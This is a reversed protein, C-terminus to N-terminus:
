ATHRSRRRALCLGLVGLGALTAFSSPEPIVNFSLVGTDSFSATYGLTDYGTITLGSVSGGTFGTLLTYSLSYDFTNEDIVLDFTGGSIDFAAGNGVIQDSTDGVDFRVTGGSLNFAAGAGLNFTSAAGENLVLVGGNVAVSGSGLAGVNQARLIGGNVTVGGAFTNAANLTLSRTEDSTTLVIGGNSVVGGITASNNLTVTRSEGGLDMTGNLTIPQAAGGLAFNGGVTINNAITRPAIVAALAGGNITLGGTGLASSNRVGLIGQELTTGGSYTNAGQLATVGNGTTNITLGVTSSAGNAIIGAIRTEGSGSGNFTITTTGSGAGSDVNRNFLLLSSSNNTINLSNTAARLNVRQLDGDGFTVAGAGSDVTIGGAGLSLIAVETSTGSARNIQTTGTNRFTMSSYSRNAGAMTVTRNGNFGDIFFFLDDSAGPNSGPTSPNASDDVSSFNAAASISAGDAGLHYYNAAIAKGGALAVVSALAVALRSHHNSQISSSM